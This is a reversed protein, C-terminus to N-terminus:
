KSPLLKMAESYSILKKSEWDINLGPLDGNKLNEDVLYTEGNSILIWVYPDDIGTALM